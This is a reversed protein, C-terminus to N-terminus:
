CRRTLPRDPRVRRRGCAVPGLLNGASRRDVAHRRHELGCARRVHGHCIPRGDLSVIGGYSLGFVSRSCRRAAPLRRGGALATRFPRALGAELDPDLTRGLRDALAGIAFRGVLSGIGILGVLGVARTEGIGLDRAAASVHAFPIFMAPASLLPSATSGGSARAACHREGLSAGPRARGRCGRGARAGCCFPPASASCCCAARSLACACRAMELGAIAQSAILPIVLTGAGIDRAPSAPRRPRPPAHVVAARQRDGARLVLGSASGSRSATPSYVTVMSAAFSTALLGGAICLMGAAVVVRPGHRDALM